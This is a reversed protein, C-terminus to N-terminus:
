QYSQAKLPKIHFSKKGSLIAYIGWAVLMSEAATFYFATHRGFKLVYFYLPIISLAGAIFKVPKPLQGGAAFLMIYCTSTSIIFLPVPGSTKYFLLAGCIAAIIGIMRYKM